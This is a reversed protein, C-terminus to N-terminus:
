TASGEPPNPYEPATFPHAGLGEAHIAANVSNCAELRDALALLHPWNGIALEAIGKKPYLAVWRLACAVYFDLVSPSGMAFWSQGQGALVELKQFHKATEARMQRRVAMQAEPEIGVYCDPYFMMRLAPHLTNSVFFLWKLFDAREPNEPGPALAGHHDALWLLIAPTDQRWRGLDKKLASFLFEM